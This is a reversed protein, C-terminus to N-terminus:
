LVFSLSISHAISQFIVQSRCARNPPICSSTLSGPWCIPILNGPVIPAPHIHKAIPTLSTVRPLMVLISIGGPREQCQRISFRRYEGITRAQRMLWCPLGPTTCRYPQARRPQRSLHPTVLLTGTQQPTPLFPSASGLALRTVIMWMAIQRLLM